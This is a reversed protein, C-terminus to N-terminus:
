RRSFEMFPQPAIGHVRKFTRSFHFADDFGMREAVQKVLLDGRQLLEAAREMRRRQLVRQPTTQAFRRFLRCVYAKDMHCSRALEDLTRIGGSSSELVERCRQFSARARGHGAPGAIALEEIRIGLLRLLLGAAEEAHRGGGRATRDLEEFLDRVRGPDSVQVPGQALRLGRLWSAARRGAFDVFHKTMPARPDTRICHPTRPGYAFAMGPVLPHTRGGLTVQGRGAVVFEVSHYRFSKRDVVYDPRCRERGGCVVAIDATRPDTLRLFYYSPTEVQQSLFGPGVQEKNVSTKM